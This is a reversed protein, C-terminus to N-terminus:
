RNCALTGAFGHRIIFEVKGRKRVVFEDLLHVVIEIVAQLLLDLVAHVDQELAAPRGVVHQGLRQDLAHADDADIKAVADQEHRFHQHGGVRHLGAHRDQARQEIAVPAGLIPLITIPVTLPSMWSM